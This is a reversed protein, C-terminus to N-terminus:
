RTPFNRRRWRDATIATIVISTSITENTANKMFFELDLNSGVIRKIDLGLDVIGYGDAILRDRPGFVTSQKEDDMFM